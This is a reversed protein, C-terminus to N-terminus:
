GHRFDGEIVNCASDQGTIFDWDREAREDNSRIPLGMWDAEFAKWGRYDWKSLIEDNTFGIDRAKQFERGLRDVSRQSLFGGKNQKRIKKVEEVGDESLGLGSFDIDIKEKNIEKVSLDKKTAQHLKTIQYTPNLDSNLESENGLKPPLLESKNGLKPDFESKNGVYPNAQKESENGVYYSVGKEALKICDKRGKKVHDIFGNEVLSKLHRYVTDPKLGLVPLESSITQRAVWYYVEGDIIEPMAWTSATSLLDLILIQNINTLGLEVARKQNISITYKM